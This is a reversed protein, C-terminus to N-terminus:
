TEKLESKQQQGLKQPTENKNSLFQWESPEPLTM